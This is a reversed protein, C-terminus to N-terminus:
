ETERKEYKSSLPYYDSLFSSIAGDLMPTADVPADNLCFADYNRFRLLSELRQSFANDRINIYMYSLTGPVAKGSIQSQYHHLQDAVIDSHHRFPHGLTTAYADSYRAELDYLLSKIMPHPTHKIAKSVSIGTTSCLIERINETVNFHPENKASAPIIPRTNKSPSVRAIGSGFFFHQPTLPRGIFVDDNMYIFRDSLGDIHHIQSIIANSNYTPLNSQNTFIDRHDVVTIGPNDTDLWSPIQKDTVLYIHRVWPMYYHVSRLSYLLENKSEFRATHTAESHYLDNESNQTARKKELWQPDNGDVWTYVVDIPFTVDDVYRNLFARPTRVKTNLRTAPVLEAAPGAIYEAARNRRPAQLGDQGDLKWFEIDCAASTASSMHEPGAISQPQLRVSGENRITQLTTPKTLSEPLLANKKLYITIEPTVKLIKLLLPLSSESIALTGRTQFQHNDVSWWDINSSELLAIIARFTKQHAEAPTQITQPSTLPQNSNRTNFINVLSRRHKAM